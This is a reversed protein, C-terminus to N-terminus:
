AKGIVASGEPQGKTWDQSQIEPVFHREPGSMMERLIQILKLLEPASARKNRNGQSEITSLVNGTEDIQRTDPGSDMQESKPEGPACDRLDSHLPNQKM